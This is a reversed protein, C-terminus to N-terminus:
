SRQADAAHDAPNGQAPHSSPSSAGDPETPQDAPKTASADHPPLGLPRGLELVWYVGFEGGQKVAIGADVFAPDLLNARHGPSRMWHAVAEIATQHGAALNEGVKRYSYGFDTARVDVTSGDFPDEHAFFGTEIMRCGYFDAIQALTPDLRVPRLHQKAREANIVDLADQILAPTNPLDGCTERAAPKAAADANVFPLSPTPLGLDAASDCGAAPLLGALALVAALSCLRKAASILRFEM